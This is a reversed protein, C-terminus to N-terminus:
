GISRRTTRVPASRKSVKPETSVTAGCRCCMIVEGSRWLSHQGSDGCKHVELLSNSIARKNCWLCVVGNPMDIAMHKPDKVLVLEDPNSPNRRDRRKYKESTDDKAKIVAATIRALYSIAMGSALWASAAKEITEAPLNHYLLALKAAADALGNGIRESEARADGDKIKAAHSKVKRVSIPWRRSDNANHLARWVDAHEKLAGCTAEKGAQFGDVVWQCDSHLIM